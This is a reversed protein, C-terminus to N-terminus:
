GRRRRVGRWCVPCGSVGRVGRYKHGRSCTKWGNNLM